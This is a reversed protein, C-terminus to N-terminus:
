ILILKININIITANINNVCNNLYANSMSLVVHEVTVKLIGTLDQMCYLDM